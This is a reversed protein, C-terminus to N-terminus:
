INYELYFTEITRKHIKVRSKTKRIILLILVFIFIAFLLNFGISLL